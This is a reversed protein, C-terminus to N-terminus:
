KDGRLAQTLERLVEGVALLAQTQAQAKLIDAMEPRGSGAASYAMEMSNLSRAQLQEYSLNTM